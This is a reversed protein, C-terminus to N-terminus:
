KNKFTEEIKTFRDKPLLPIELGEFTVVNPAPVGDKYFLEYKGSEPNFINMNKTSCISLIMDNVTVEMVYHDYIKDKVHQLPLTTHDKVDGLFGRFKEEEKDVELDIAIEKINDEIGYIYRALGESVCWKFSYKEFIPTIYQLAAIIGMKQKDTM